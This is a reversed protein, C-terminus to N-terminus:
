DSERSKGYCCFNNYIIEMGSAPCMLIGKGNVKADGSRACEQCRVVPVADLTPAKKVLRVAMCYNCGDPDDKHVSRCDECHKEILDEADILRM